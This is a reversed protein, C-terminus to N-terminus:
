FSPSHTVNFTCLDRLVDEYATLANQTRKPSIFNKFTEYNESTSFRQLINRIYPMPQHVKVRSTTYGMTTDTLYECFMNLPIQKRNLNTHALIEQPFSDFSVHNTNVTSKSTGLFRLCIDIDPDLLKWGSLVGSPPVESSDKHDKLIHDIKNYSARLQYLSRFVGYLSGTEITAPIVISDSQVFVFDHFTTGNTGIVPFDSPFDFIVLSFEQRLLELKKQTRCICDIGSEVGDNEILGKRNTLIKKEKGSIEENGNETDNVNNMYKMEKLNSRCLDKQFDYIFDFGPVGNFGTELRVHDFDKRNLFFDKLTRFESHFKSNYAFGIGNINGFERLTPSQLTLGCNNNFDIILVSEIGNKSALRARKLTQGTLAKKLRETRAGVTKGLLSKPLYHELQEISADNDIGDNDIGISDSVVHNSVIPQSNGSINQQTIDNQVSFMKQRKYFHWYYALLLSLSTKGTGGSGNHISIIKGM